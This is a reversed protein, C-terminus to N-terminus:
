AIRTVMTLSKYRIMVPENVQDKNVYSGSWRSSGAVIFDKGADWDKKVQAKSTYDRGYAPILTLM